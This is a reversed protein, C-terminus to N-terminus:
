SCIRRLGSETYLVGAEIDNSLNLFTGYCKDNQPASNGLAGGSRGKPLAHSSSCVGLADGRVARVPRATGLLGRHPLAGTEALQVLGKAVSLAVANLSKRIVFYTLDLLLNHGSHRVWAGLSAQRCVFLSLM